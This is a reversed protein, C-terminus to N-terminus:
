RIVAIKGSRKHGADNTILYLYIGSAVAHGASNTLTWVYLGGSNQLSVDRVLHGGAEYLRVRVQSTLNDFTVQANGQYVRVPNPFVNIGSLDDASRISTLATVSIFVLFLIRKLNTLM